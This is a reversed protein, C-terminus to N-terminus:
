GQGSGVERCRSRVWEVANMLSDVPGIGAFCKVGDPVGEMWVPCLWDDEAVDSLHRPRGVKVRLRQTVGTSSRFRIDGEAVVDEIEASQPFLSM